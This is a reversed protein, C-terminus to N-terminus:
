INKRASSYGDKFADGSASVFGKASDKVAELAKLTKDAVDKPLGCCKSKIIKAGIVTVALAILIKGLTKVM